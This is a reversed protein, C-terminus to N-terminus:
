IDYSSEQAGDVTRGCDTGYVGLVDFVAPSVMSQSM